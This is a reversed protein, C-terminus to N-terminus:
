SRGRTGTGAVTVAQVRQMWRRRVGSPTVIFVIRNIVATRTSAPQWFRAAVGAASVDAIAGAIDSVPMAPMVWESEVIARSVAFFFYPGFDCQRTSGRAGRPARENSSTM